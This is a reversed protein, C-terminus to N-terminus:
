AHPDVARLHSSRSATTSASVAPAPTEDEVIMWRLAAMAAPSLGLKGDLERMEKEIALKGTASRKLTSLAFEVRQVAEDDAGALLDHLELFDEGFGLMALDDELRARRAVVYLAGSDWAAAQPTGWAWAWWVAGAAALDYPCEPAPDSRGSVPLKTSPITPANRRRSDPDPLPGRPM